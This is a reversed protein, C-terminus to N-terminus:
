PTARSALRHQVNMRHIGLSARAQGPWKASGPREQVIFLSCDGPSPPDVTPLTSVGEPTVRSYASTRSRVLM